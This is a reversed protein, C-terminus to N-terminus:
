VVLKGELNRVSHYRSKVILVFIGVKGLLRPGLEMEGGLILREDENPNGFM